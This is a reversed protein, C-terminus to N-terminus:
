TRIYNTIALKWLVRHHCTCLTNKEIPFVTKLSESQSLTGWMAENAVFGQIRKWFSKEVQFSGKRDKVRKLDM